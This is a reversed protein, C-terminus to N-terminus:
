LKNILQQIFMKLYMRSGVSKANLERAFSAPVGLVLTNRQLGLTVIEKERYGEKYSIRIGYESILWSNAGEKVKRNSLVQKGEDKRITVFVNDCIRQPNYMKFSSITISSSDFTVSIDGESMKKFERGFWSRMIPINFNGKETLFKVFAIIDAEYKDFLPLGRYWQILPAREDFSYSGETEFQIMAM